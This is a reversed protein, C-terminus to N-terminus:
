KADSDVADAAVFALVTDPDDDIKQITWGMYGFVISVIPSLWCFFNFPLYALTAVGLVGAQYAGGSNWPVLNATVTASDEVARSLNKPHLGRDRFEQAYMRGSMVIAMYQDCVLLNAAVGTLVSSAILSGTSKARELLKAVVVRMQGTREVVGGFMMAVVIIAVTFMMSLMGGKALLEDVESVGTDPQFGNLAVSLFEGYTNGQFILGLIVAVIAGITIAPIAPIKLFSVVGVVLPPLLFIPSIYFETNLTSLITNIASVDVDDTSYRLGIIVFLIFTIGISVSTTYAMHRIHTYLDTGVMAPALNTTDSLPSMKDGFYAGSLIAGAVIPLPFGLGWSSGTALSSIACIILTAPLFYSPSMLELGYYLLTPVVGSMIWVGILIGIIMLIIVAQLANTVWCIMGDQITKWSYGARLAMIAAVLVGLLM